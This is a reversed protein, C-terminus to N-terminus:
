RSTATLHQAKVWLICLDLGSPATARYWRGDPTLAHLLGEIVYFKWGFMQDEPLPTM